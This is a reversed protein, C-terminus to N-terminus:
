DSYQMDEQGTDNNSEGHAAPHWDDREMNVQFKKRFAESLEQATFDMYLGIELWFFLQDVHEDLQKARDENEPFDPKWRKMGRVERKFETMEDIMASQLTMIEHARRSEIAYARANKKLEVFGPYDNLGRQAMRQTLVRRMHVLDEISLTHDNM